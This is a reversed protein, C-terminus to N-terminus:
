QWGNYLTQLAEPALPTVHAPPPPPPPRPGRPRGGGGGGGGGGRGRGGARSRAGGGGGRRTLGPWVLALVPLWHGCACVLAGPPPARGSGRGGGGGGGAALTVGSAGSASCVRYLPQCIVRRRRALVAAPKM